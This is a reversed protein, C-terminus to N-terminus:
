SVKAPVRPLPCSAGIAATGRIQLFKILPEFFFADLDCADDIVPDRESDVEAVGIAVADDLSEMRWAMHNLGVQGAAQLPAGQGVQM